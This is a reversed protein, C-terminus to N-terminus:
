FHFRVPNLNTLKELLDKKAPRDAKPPMVYGSVKARNTDIAEIFSDSLARYGVKHKSMLIMPYDSGWLLKDIIKHKGFDFPRKGQLDLSLIWALSAVAKSDDFDFASIDSYTNPYNKLLEVIRYTWTKRNIISYTKDDSWFDDDNEEWFVTKKVSEEGGFHAFNIRLDHLEPNERLIALWNAPDTYNLLEKKSKGGSMHAARQCHITVPLRLKSIRKYAAVVGKRAAGEPYPDFGLSPYLKIGIFDGNDLGEPSKRDAYPRFTVGLDNIVEDFTAGGEFRKMSLGLFPLVRFNNNLIRQNAKQIGELLHEAQHKLKEHGCGKSKEFDMILPTLVKLKADYGPILQNRSAEIEKIVRKINSAIDSEMFIFFSSVMGKLDNLNKPWLPALRLWNLNVREIINFLPVDDM